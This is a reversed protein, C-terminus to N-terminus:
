WDGVNHDQALDEDTQNNILQENKLHQAQNKISMWEWKTKQGAKLLVVTNEGRDIKANTSQSTRRKQGQPNKLSLGYTQNAM